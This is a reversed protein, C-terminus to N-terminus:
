IVPPRGTRTMRWITRWRLPRRDAAGRWGARYGRLAQRVATPSRWRLATLVFWVALHVVAVPWPLHRRALRVRNRAAYFHYEGHPPASPAPHIAVVDGAYRIRSGADIARWGLDIGEHAYWLDEAFGGLQEFLSRRVGVAGEWFTTADSSRTPDGARLRPVHRRAPRRGAPDVVRPQVVGITPDSSFVDAMARLTDPHPLRADDDLFLLLEGEVHPVGANRGAAAGINEPLEIVRAPDPLGAPRCGNGIVVVDLHVHRQALLSDVAASLESPRRGMTLVVAGFRVTAIDDHVMPAINGSGATDM